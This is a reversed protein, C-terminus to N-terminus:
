LSMLRTLNMWVSNIERLVEMMPNLTYARTALKKTSILNSNLLSLISILIVVLNMVLKLATKTFSCIILHHELLVNLHLHSQLVGVSQESINTAVLYGILKLILSVINLVLLVLNLILRIQNIRHAAPVALVLLMTTVTLLLMVLTVLFVSRQLKITVLIITM